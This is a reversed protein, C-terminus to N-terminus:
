AGPCAFSPSLVSIVIHNISMEVIQQKQEPTLSGDDKLLVKGIARLLFGQLFELQAPRNSGVSHMDTGGTRLQVHSFNNVSALMLMDMANCTGPIVRLNEICLKYFLMAEERCENSSDVLSSQHLVLAMNFHIMSWIFSIEAYSSEVDEFSQFYRNGNFYQSSASFLLAHNYIYFSEDSLAPVVRTCPNHSLEAPIRSVVSRQCQLPRKCQAAFFEYEECHILLLRNIITLADNLHRIAQENGGLGLAEAGASNLRAAERVMVWSDRDM